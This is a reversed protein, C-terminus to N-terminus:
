FPQYFGLGLGVILFHEIRQPTLALQFISQLSSGFGLDAVHHYIPNTTSKKM